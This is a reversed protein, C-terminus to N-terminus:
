GKGGVVRDIYARLNALPTLPFIGCGPSIVDMGERLSEETESVIEERSGSCLIQPPIKGILAVKGETVERAKRIDVPKDISFADVGTGAMQDLLPTSNGCIHLITPRSLSAVLARTYPFSFQAYYAPGLAQSTGDVLMLVDPGRKEIEAAYSKAIRTMKEMQEMLFGPEEYISMTIDEFSMTTSLLEFPTGFAVILPVDERTREKLLNIAELVEPMRGDRLPDPVKVTHYEERTKPTSMPPSSNDEGFRTECGMAEAEVTIDFPIRVSEIGGIEHCAWALGAMDRAKKQAAPWAYGSKEMIEVIANQTPVAAPPRDVTERRLARLLREKPTM